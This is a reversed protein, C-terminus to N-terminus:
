QRQTRTDRKGGKLIRGGGRLREGAAEGERGRREM